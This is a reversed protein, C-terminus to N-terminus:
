PFRAWTPWRITRGSSASVLVGRLIDAAAILLLVGLLIWWKHYHLWNRRKEKPSYEPKEEPKVDRYKWQLYESAM